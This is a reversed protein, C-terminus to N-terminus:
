LHISRFTMGASKVVCYSMVLLVAFLLVGRGLCIVEMGSVSRMSTSPIAEDPVIFRLIITVICRPRSSRWEAGKEGEAEIARDQRALVPQFRLTSRTLPSVM